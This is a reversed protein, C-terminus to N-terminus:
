LKMTDKNNKYVMVWMMKSYGKVLHLNKAKTSAPCTTVVKLM